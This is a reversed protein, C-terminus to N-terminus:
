RKPKNAKGTISIERRERNQITRNNDFGDNILRIEDQIVYIQAQSLEVPTTLLRWEVDASCPPTTTSGTYAFASLKEPLLSRLDVAAQEAGPLGDTIPAYAPNQEGAKIFVGVVVTAGADTKNVFHMELDSREGNLVHEATTHFHFQKFFYSKGKLWVSSNNAENGWEINTLTGEPDVLEDRYDVELRPSRPGKASVADFAIPSQDPGGCNNGDIILNEWNAPCNECAYGYPEDKDQAFAHITLTFLFVSTFSVLGKNRMKM